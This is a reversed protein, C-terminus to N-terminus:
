NDNLKKRVMELVSPGVISWDVYPRGDEPQVMPCGFTNDDIYISAYVKPSSTWSRQTPNINIGDFIVGNKVCFAVAQDLLDDSRMTYLILNAGVQQFAKMWEFAGPVSEGIEPFIHRVITGDFDIAVTFHKTGRLM